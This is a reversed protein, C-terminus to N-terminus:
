LQIYILYRTWLTTRRTSSSLMAKLLYILRKVLLRKYYSHIHFHLWRLDNLRCGVRSNQVVMHSAESPKVTARTAYYPCIGINKGVAGLDEIDRVKALTHDRFEHVLSENEKNPLFTCKRDQPIDKQQLELCRDNIAAASGLKSVKQNICLSKRSALPLHKVVPPDNQEETSSQVATELWSVPRLKVKRIEHIFQTLQSHTRSCYFIKTEDIPEMDEKETSLEAFMGLRTMADAYPGLLGVEVELFWSKWSIKLRPQFAKKRALVLFDRQNHVTRMMAIINMWFLAHKPM